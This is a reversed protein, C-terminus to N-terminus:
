LIEGTFANVVRCNGAAGGSVFVRGRLDVKLGVSSTGPGQSFVEGRGPMLNVPYLDVDGRSRFFAFALAGIAIGQPFFGNPLNLTTPFINTSASVPASAAPAASASPGTLVTALAAIAAIASVLTRRHNMRSSERRVRNM